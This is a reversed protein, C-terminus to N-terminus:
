CCDFTREGQINALIKEPISFISLFIIDLIINFQSNFFESYIEADENIRQMIEAKDYKNYSEYELNIMHKYLATKLNTNIKLKLKTTARDRFYNLARSVLNLIIILIAFFMLDKIYNNKLFTHIIPSMNEYNNFLVGDIAYKINLSIQITIYSIIISLLTLLIIYKATNKLSIKIVNNKM